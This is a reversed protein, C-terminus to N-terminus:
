PPSFTIAERRAHSLLSIIAASAALVHRVQEIYLPAAELRRLHKFAARQKRGFRCQGENLELFGFDLRADFERPFALRM